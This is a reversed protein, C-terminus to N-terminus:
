KQAVQKVERDVLIYGLLQAGILFGFMGVFFPWVVPLFNFNREEYYLFGGIFVTTGLGTLILRPWNIKVKTPLANGESNFRYILVPYFVDYGTNINLTVEFHDNTLRKIELKKTRGLDITKEEVKESRLLRKVFVSRTLSTSAM